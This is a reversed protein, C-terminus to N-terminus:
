TCIFTKPSTQKIELLYDSSVNPYLSSLFSIDKSDCRKTSIVNQVKINCM